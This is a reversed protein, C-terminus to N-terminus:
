AEPQHQWTSPLYFTGYHETVAPNPDVWFPHLRHQHDFAQRADRDYIVASFEYAGPLLNLEAVQYDVVGAGEVAPILYGDLRTNPGNVHTDDDRYIAVGFTPQEVRQAAQYHLRATFAEGTRFRQRARGTKDLFEVRTIEVERSGWHHTDKQQNDQTHAYAFQEMYATVVNDADEYAVVRGDEIWMAQQCMQCIMEASHSVFLTTMGAAQIDRIRKLCKQQFHADGVAFAEDILLIDADVHIAVAFALRLYMGSSYFKIPLDIFREIESFAVIEDFRRRMTTQRIGILSGYLFVNERGTLDPHFGTGLELLASVRGQLRLKGSSPELVRACLKLLTSKGAGNEGIVGLSAGPMLQFSVDRLVCIEEVNRSRRHLTQLFREQLSRVREHELYFCKTVHDFEIASNM